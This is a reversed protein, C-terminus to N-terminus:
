EHAAALERGEGLSVVDGGRDTSGPWWAVRGVLATLAPVLFLSVVFAVLIIGLTVAFGIEYFFSVGSILLSGFTGALIVAAASVSPGAHEVALSAARRPDNGERMEERLRATMLINYDTGIATVFLYVIIPITFALGAHGLAGQFVLVSAGLTAAFGLVVAVVLYLPAVLARFLGGLILLFLLGAVPFIVSLDRDTAQRVDVFASTEGGVYARTGEPAAKHAADRVPGQVTDLAANSYPSDRLILPVVAIRGDKALQPAGPTAVGQVGHLKAAFQSIQQRTLPQDSALYVQTPSLAGLTFGKQMTKFAAASETNSPLQSVQDYNSHFALAGAGLAVLVALATGAVAAPRHAIFVGLRAFVTNTPQRRWSTSPWFVRPGLLTVIAPVLTLAALLMVAVAIALGPGLTTFFGLTALVLAAFAAIVAFAASAIAEGVREVAAVMASRPDDGSRLHERYRFLLFLIYDTGIGFLVVTLLASLEQGVQFDLAKAVAAIVGGSLTFVLGVSVIPLLAAIPSRFILLLLVIILSVTVVGSIQEAKMFASENDVVLAAEGTLGASLDTGRLQRDVVDRVDKVADKVGRDQSTGEFQVQMLAVQKNPAVAQPNVAPDFLAAHVHDIKADNVAAAVQKLDAIDGEDLATGDQREVVAVATAGQSKPFAKKALDLAHVSEASSPLFSAQDSNTVDALRPATAVIGVAAVVWILIM